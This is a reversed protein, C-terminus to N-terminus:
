NLYESFKSIEVVELHNNNNEIEYLTCSADDQDKFIACQIAINGPTFKAFIPRGSPALGCYVTKDLPHCIFYM